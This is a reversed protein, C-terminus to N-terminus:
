DTWLISMSKRGAVCSQASELGPPNTSTCRWRYGVASCLGPHGYTFRLCALAVKRGVGCSINKVRLNQSHVSSDGPGRPPVCRQIASRPASTASGCGVALVLVTLSVGVSSRSMQLRYIGRRCMDAFRHLRLTTLWSKVVRGTARRYHSCATPAAAPRRPLPAEPSLELGPAKKTTWRASSANM